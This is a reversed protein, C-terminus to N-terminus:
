GWPLEKWDSPREPQWHPFASYAERASSTEMEAGAGHRRALESDPYVITKEPTRAGVMFLVCPGSGAGVFVHETGAPCHVFDWARLPREEGEVLLLCEGSLVLFNEQASEAHYLGSPKGPELVALTLGVDPFRHVDLGPRSRVVPTDAEFVCRGGFAQNVLWAAEGANVVFWGDGAPALGSDAAVLGAEDVM